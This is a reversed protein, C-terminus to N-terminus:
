KKDFKVLRMDDGVTELDEPDRRFRYTGVDKDASEPLKVKIGKYEFHGERKDPVELMQEKKYEIDNGIDLPAGSPNQITPGDEDYEANKWGDIEIPVIPMGDKDLITVSEGASAAPSETETEAPTAPDIADNPSSFESAECSLKTTLFNRTFEDDGKALEHINIDSVSVENIPKACYKATTVLNARFTYSSYIVRSLLINRRLMCLNRFM